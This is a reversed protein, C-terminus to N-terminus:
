AIIGMERERAARRYQSVLGFMAENTIKGCSIIIKLAESVPMQTRIVDGEPLIAHFGDDPTPPNPLYLNVWVQGRADTCESTVLGITFVGERPFEVLAVEKFGGNEKSSFGDVIQKVTSFIDRVLPIRLVLSELSHLLQHGLIRGIVGIGLIGFVFVIVITIAFGIGTIEHGIFFDVIPQFVDDITQFGWWLLRFTIYFPIFLLFGTVFYRRLLRVLWRKM